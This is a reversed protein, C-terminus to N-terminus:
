YQGSSTDGGDDDGNDNDEDHHGTGVLPTHRNLPPM